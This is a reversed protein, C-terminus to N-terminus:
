FGGDMQHMISEGIADLAYFRTRHKVDDRYKITYKHRLNNLAKREIRRCGEASLNFRDGVEALSSVSVGLGFRYMLVSQENIPLEQFISKFERFKEVILYNSAVDDATNINPTITLKRIFKHAKDYDFGGGIKNCVNDHHLFDDFTVPKNNHNRYRFETVYMYSSPHYSYKNFIHQIINEMRNQSPFKDCAYSGRSWTQWQDSYCKDDLYTFRIIYKYEGQEPMILKGSRVHLITM